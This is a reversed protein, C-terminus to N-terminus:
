RLHNAGTSLAEAEGVNAVGCSRRARHGVGARAVEVGRQDGDDFGAPRVHQDPQAVAALGEHGLGALLRALLAQEVGVARRAVEVQAEGEARGELGPWLVLPRQGQQHVLAQAVPDLQVLQHPGARLLQSAPAAIRLGQQGVVRPQDVREVPQGGFVGARQRALGAVDLGDLEARQVHVPAALVAEFAAGPLVQRPWRRRRRQANVGGRQRGHGAQAQQALGGAFAWLRAQLNALGGVPLARQGYRVRLHAPEAAMAQHRGLAMGRLGGAERHAGQRRRDCRGAPARQQELLGRGLQRQQLQVGAAQAVAAHRHCGLM